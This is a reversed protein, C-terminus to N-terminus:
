GRPRHIAHFLVKGFTFIAGTGTCATADLRHHLTAKPRLLILLFAFWGAYRATDFWASLLAAQPAKTLSLALGFWGWLASCTVAAFVTTQSWERASHVYGLGHLRLAFASYAVGVLGYSWATLVM